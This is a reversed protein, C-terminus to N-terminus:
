LAQWNTTTALNHPALLKEVEVLAAREERHSGDREASLPRVHLAVPTDDYCFTITPFGPYHPGKGYEAHTYDIKRDLLFFEISKPDDHYLVLNINSHEGAVGSLVSGTLYPRFSAFFHMLEVAKRRLHQLLQGHEPDYIARHAALAAEIEQNSPLAHGETVGMQRAAKRKAQAFDDIHDEAILRAAHAAIQARLTASSRDQTPRSM